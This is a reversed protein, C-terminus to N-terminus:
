SVSPPRGVNDRTVPEAPWTADFDFVGEASLSLIRAKIHAWVRPCAIGIAENVALVKSLPVAHERWSQGRGHISQVVPMLRDIAYAYQAEPSQRAVFEEWRAMFMSAQPEPLLDFIRAAARREKVEQEAANRDYVLCDGADIEPIDHVLLMEVVRIPDVPPEAYRTLALALLCIQWSHEASNEYRDLGVPKSKRLVAKLKDLEIIFTFIHDLKSNM